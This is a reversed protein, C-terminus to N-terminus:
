LIMYENSLQIVSAEPFLAYLIFDMKGFDPAIDFVSCERADWGHFDNVNRQLQRVVNQVQVFMVSKIM